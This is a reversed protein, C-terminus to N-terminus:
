RWCSRCPSNTHARKSHWGPSRISYTSPTWYFVQKRSCDPDAGFPRFFRDFRGTETWTIAAVRKHVNGGPPPNQSARNENGSKDFPTPLERELRSKQKGQRNKHGDDDLLFVCRWVSLLSFYRCGTGANGKTPTLDCRLPSGGKNNGIRSFIM